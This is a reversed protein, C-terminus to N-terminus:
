AGRRRRAGLSAGALLAVASVGPAPVRVGYFLFAVSADFGSGGDSQIGSGLVRVETLVYGVLDPGIIGAQGVFASSELLGDMSVSDDPLIAGFFVENDVGNTLADNAGDLDGSLLAQTGNFFDVLTLTAGSLYGSSGPDNADSLAFFLDLNFTEDLAATGSVDLTHSAILNGASAVGCVVVAAGLAGVLSMGM